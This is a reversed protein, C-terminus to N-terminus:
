SKKRSLFSNIKAYLKQEFTKHNEAKIALLEAITKKCDVLSSIDMQYVGDKENLFLQNDPSLCVISNLRKEKNEFFVIKEDEMSTITLGDLSTISNLNRLKRIIFGRKGVPDLVPKEQDCNDNKLVLKEKELDITDVEQKYNEVFAYKNDQSIVINKIKKAFNMKKLKAIVKEDYDKEHDQLFADAWQAHFYKIFDIYWYADSRNNSNRFTEIKAANDIEKTEIELTNLDIKIKKDKSIIIIKAEDFLFKLKSKEEIERELLLKLSLVDYVYLYSASRDHARDAIIIKKLDKTIFITHKCANIKQKEPLQKGRYKGTIEDKIIVFFDKPKPVNVMHLDPLLLLACKKTVCAMINTQVDLCCVPIDIIKKRSSSLNKQVLQPMGLYLEQAIIHGAKGQLANLTKHITKNDYTIQSLFWSIYKCRNYLIEPIEFKEAINTDQVLELLPGCSQVLSNDKLLQVTRELNEDEALELENKSLTKDDLMTRFTGSKRLLKESIEYRKKSPTIITITDSIIKEETKGEHMVPFGSEMGYLHLAFISICLFTYKKIM